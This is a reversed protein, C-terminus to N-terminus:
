KNPCSQLFLENAIMFVPSHNEVDLKADKKLSVQGYSMVAVTEFCDGVLKGIQALRETVARQHQIHKATQDRM